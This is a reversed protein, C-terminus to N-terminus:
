ARGAPRDDGSLICLFACHRRPSGHVGQILTQPRLSAHEVSAHCRARDTDQRPLAQQGVREPATEVYGARVNTTRPRLGSVPRQPPQPLERRRSGLWSALCPCDGYVMTRRQAVPVSEQASVLRRASVSSPIIPMNTLIHAASSLFCACASCYSVSQCQSCRSSAKKGCVACGFNSTLRAVADFELPGLPLLVSLEYRDETPTRDVKFGQPVLAANMKFLKLLLKQESLTANIDRLSSLGDADVKEKM